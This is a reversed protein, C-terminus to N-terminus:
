RILLMKKSKIFANTRMCYIYMGSAAQRFDSNKGDWNISYYGPPKVENVLTKVEKGTIDYITIKVKQAEPIAYHIITTPNFPNPYNTSLMYDEPLSLDSYTEPPTTKKPLILGEEYMYEMNALTEQLFEIGDVDFGYQEIYNDLLQSAKEIQGTYAYLYVLNGMVCMRETGYLHNLALSSLQIARENENSLMKWIIMYQIARNSIPNYLYDSHLHSLFTFFSEQEGFTNTVYDSRLISYLVSLASDAQFSLPDSLILEKLYQIHEEPNMSSSGAFSAPKSLGGTQTQGEWYPQQTMSKFVFVDGYFQSYNPPYEGWWCRIAEIEPNGYYNYLEYGSDDHVSSELLFVYPNGYYAYIENYYNNRITNHVCLYFLDSNRTYIGNRTSIGGIGNDEIVSGYINILNGSTSYIGDRDGNYIRTGQIDIQTNNITVINHRNDYINCSTVDADNKEMRLGQDNNKFICNEVINNSAPSPSGYLKLGWDGYEVICWKFINDSGNVFLTGWSKRSTGNTSTFYIPSSETGEAIIKSGAKICLSYKSDFLVKTGPLVELTSNGDFKVTGLAHLNGFWIEDSTFTGGTIATYPIFNHKTITIYLPRVPTEFGTGSVNHDFWHYSEGNDSSSATIDCGSEGANVYVIEGDDMIDVSTFQQPTNTCVQTSADGFIHWTEFQDIGTAGYQEIMYCSGNFCIGGVTNKSETVLLDIAEAQAITPEVWRQSISSNYSSIAGKTNDDTGSRLWAEGFCTKGPFDGGYCAVSIIFPLMNTNSLSFVDSNSFGTTVWGYSWGHGIYNVIGRGSNLANTVQAKTAGPDYIQDVLTYTYGLLDDRLWNCREWDTPDGDDSAIGSGKHFWSGGLPDIEYKLTRKVQNEVQDVTEASFRSIFADPYYDDGELLTYMPDATEDNAYLVDGTDPPVGRTPVNEADGVLLIFTVGETDYKNQIYSKIADPTTGIDSCKVLETLFGKRTKWNVLPLMNNYYDDAAIILMRGQESIDQYTAKGLGNNINQSFNLFFREYTKQFNTEIKGRPKRKVNIIGPGDPKIRVVLRKYVQLEGKVANHRFLNFRVTIGRYDRLIFPDSLEVVERPWWTDQQYFESFIYPVTKPDVSRLLSGKSPAVPAIRVTEYEIELIEYCMHADDPIIISESIRPLQPLGKELFTAAKPMSIVSYTQSQIDVTELNYGAVKFEIVTWNINDELVKAEVPQGEMGGLSHWDANASTVVFFTVLLFIMYKKM